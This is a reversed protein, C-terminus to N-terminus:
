GPTCRLSQRATEATAALAPTAALARLLLLGRTSRLRVIAQSTPTPDNPGAVTFRIIQGPQGNDHTVFVNDTNGDFVALSLYGGAATVSVDVPGRSVDLVCRSYLLDPSPLPIFRDSATLAHAHVVRNVGSQAALRHMVFAMVLRPAAWITAAHAAYAFLLIAAITRAARKM